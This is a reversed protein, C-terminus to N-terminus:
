SVEFNMSRIVPEVASVWLVGLVFRFIDDPLMEATSARGVHRAEVSQTLFQPAGSFVRLQEFRGVIWTCESEQLFTNRRSSMSAAQILKVLVHVQTFDLDPLPVHKIGPESTMILADSGSESANLLVVPGNTAAGQLTSVRSSRLFDQFGDLQRVDELAALWETNLRRYRSAEQEMSMMRQQSVM